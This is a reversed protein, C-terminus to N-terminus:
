KLNSINFNLIGHTDKIKKDQFQLCAFNLVTQINNKFM